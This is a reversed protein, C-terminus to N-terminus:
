AHKEHSGDPLLVDRTFESRFVPEIGSSINGALLSITGTPAISTVCRM